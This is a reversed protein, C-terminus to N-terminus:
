AIPPPTPPADTRGCVEQSYESWSLEDSLAAQAVSFLEQRICQIENFKKLAPFEPHKEEQKKGEEIAICMSCPHEADFTTKVAEVVSMEQSRFILM